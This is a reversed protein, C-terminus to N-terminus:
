VVARGRVKPNRVEVQAGDEYEQDSGYRVVVVDFPSSGDAARWAFLDAFERRLRSGEQETGWGLKGGDPAFFYTVDGNAVSPIPGVLLHRFEDPIAARFQEVDPMFERELVYDALTVIVAEHIVIGM